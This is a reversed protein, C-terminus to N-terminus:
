LEVAVMFAAIAQMTLGAVGIWSPELGGFYVIMNFGLGLLALAAKIVKYATSM